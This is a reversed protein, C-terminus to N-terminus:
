HYLYKKSLEQEPINISSFGVRLSQGMYSEFYLLEIKHFGKELAVTGDRRRASHGGDNNVVEKDNIKLVSGDDSYTYFKYYATEPIKIYGKFVFAFYDEVEAESLDIKSRIVGTKKPKYNKIENVSKLKAEYYEYKLGKNKPNVNVAPLVNTSKTIESLGSPYNFAYKTGSPTSIYTRFSFKNENLIIVRGGRELKGYADAGTVNGFGLAIGKYTGIYNNDHDHGTFVGMVDKQEILASFLGSNIEPSAVGEFQDGITSKDKAVFNFELLPIHFFMMSPIQTKSQKTYDTSKKRYWEIQDSKIWDYTGLKPNFTYHHSDLFYLVAAPKDSKSSIVPLDFNLVGSVKENEGIFYRLNKLIDYTEKKTLNHEEDHNGFTVTWPIKAEQFTKTMELWGKKAPAETVLDGTLVIFDPKEKKIVTQMTKVTKASNKSTQSWHIDTFQLIKFTKDKKFKLQTKNQASVLSFCFLLLISLYKM